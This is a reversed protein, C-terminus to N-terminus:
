NIYGLSKLVEVDAAAPVTRTGAAGSSASRIYESLTRNLAALEGAGCGDPDLEGPDRSLNYCEYTRSKCYDIVSGAECPGNVVLKADRTRVGVRQYYDAFERRELFVSDRVSDAGELLPMFTVGDIDGAGSINLFDLVTPYIDMISVLGGVRGAGANMNKPFRVILPIRIDAEDIERGHEFYYDHGGMSEGHDATLIVLTNESLNLDDLKRFLAGLQEDTYYVENDYQDRYYNADTYRTGNRDEVYAGPLVQYGMMVSEDVMDRELSKFTGRYENPPYYPGHPDMYHVWLFFRGGRNDELWEFVADNTEKADREYFNRRNLEPRTYAFDYIDFYRGFGSYAPQLLWNSVFGAATFNRGRLASPLTRFEGMPSYPDRVGHRYPYLGTLMSSVSPNTKPRVTVANDFVYAGGAFSDVNRSANRGYGYVGLHDARLADVSVLVVNCGGCRLRRADDGGGLLFFGASFALVVLVVAAAAWRAGSEM